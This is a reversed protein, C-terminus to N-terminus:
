LLCAPDDLLPLLHQGLRLALAVPQQALRALLRGTLRRLGLDDLKGLPLSLVDELVRPALRPLSPELHLIPRVRDQGRELDIEVLEETRHLPAPLPQVLARLLGHDGADASRAGVVFFRRILHTAMPAAASPKAEAELVLDPALRKAM